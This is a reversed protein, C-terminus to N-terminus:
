NDSKSNTIFGNTVFSWHSDNSWFLIMNPRAVSPLEYGPQAPPECNTYRCKIVNLTVSVDATLTNSSPSKVLCLLVATSPSSHVDCCFVSLRSSTRTIITLVLRRQQQCRVAASILSQGTSIEINYLCSRAHLQSSSQHDSFRRARSQLRCWRLVSQRDDIDSAIDHFDINSSIRSVNANQFQFLYTRGALLNMMYGNPHTLRKQMYPVVTHHNFSDYINLMEGNPSLNAGNLAFRIWTGLSGPCTIANIFNPTVSCPSSGNWLGDPPLIVSGPSNALTGDEDVYLGDYVWRFKGRNVVNSFSLQSFRTVWGSISVVRHM